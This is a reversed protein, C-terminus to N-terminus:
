DEMKGHSLAQILQSCDIVNLQFKLQNSEVKSFLSKAFMFDGTKGCSRLLLTFGFHTFKKSVEKATPKLEVKSSACKTNHFVTHSQLQTTQSLSQVKRLM